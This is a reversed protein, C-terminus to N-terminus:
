PLSEREARARERWRPEDLGFVLLWFIMAASALLGVSAMVPFVRDGLPPHLFALFGLGAAASLLGLARPLFTSRFILYGKILGAFGFFATGMAAGRDNVKLLLLALAQLQGPSFAQLAHVGAGDLILLPALYFLRSVTKLVCATYGLVAAILSLNRNVPKLLGYFVATLVINCAMEFLFATFSTQYLTRHALIRAATGAADGFDVLRNSVMGQAFVAALITLLMLVGAMRAELGLPSMPKRERTGAPRM